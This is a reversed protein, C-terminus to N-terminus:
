TPPHAPIKDYGHVRALEEVLDEEIAIDFRYTPPTVRFEGEASSFEFRLRRLIDSVLGRELRVGLLREARRIRLRVPDRAPLQARGESVAGAAGGCIDIVLQTARELAHSTGGFDVGREFRYASDSEFGLVRSRGAIVDPAFFASELFVDRTADGVATDLGGMIGALAVAKREDAIVLFNPKLEPTSGNLLT